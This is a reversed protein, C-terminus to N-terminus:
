QNSVLADHLLACQSAVYTVRANPLPRLRLSCLSMVKQLTVSSDISQWLDRLAVTVCCACFLQLRSRSIDPFLCAAVRGLWRSHLLYLAQYREVLPQKVVLESLLWSGARFARQM